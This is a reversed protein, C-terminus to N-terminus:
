EATIVLVECITSSQNEVVLQWFNGCIEFVGTNDIDGPDWPELLVSSGIDGNLKLVCPQDALVRLYRKSQTYFVIGTGPADTIGTPMAKTSVIDFRQATVAVVEYTGRIVSTYGSSIAMKDGVQAGAASYAQIDSEAAVLVAEAIAVFSQGTPRAVQIADEGVSVYLVEWEGENLGNFPGVSDGTSTGPIFITDGVVVGTFDGAGSTFTATQNASTTVTVTKGTLDIGRDTRFGPAPGNGTWSFRYRDDQGSISDISLETAVNVSIGRSGSFVQLSEGPDLSRPDAKANKVSYSRASKWDVTKQQPNSSGEKDSYALTHYNLKLTGEM